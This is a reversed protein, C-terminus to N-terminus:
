TSRMRLPSFGASRGTCAGFLYSSTILRLVALASPRVTGGDRSVRASSTMSYPKSLESCRSLDPLPVERGLGLRQILTQKRPPASIRQRATVASFTACSGYRFDRDLGCIYQKETSFHAAVTVPFDAANSDALSPPLLGAQLFRSHFGGVLGNAHPQGTTRLPWQDLAKRLKIDVVEGLDLRRAGRVELETYLAAI